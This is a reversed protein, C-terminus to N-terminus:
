YRKPTITELNNTPPSAKSGHAEASNSYYKWFFIARMSTVKKSIHCPRMEIDLCDHWNYAYAYIVYPTLSVRGSIIANHIDFERWKAPPLFRRIGRWLVLAEQKRPRASWDTNDRPPTMSRPWFFGGNTTITFYAIIKIMPKTHESCFMGSLLTWPALMPGMQPRCSGPPGWTPGM